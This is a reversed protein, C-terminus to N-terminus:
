LSATRLPGDDRKSLREVGGAGFRVESATARVGDGFVVARFLFPDYNGSSVNLM